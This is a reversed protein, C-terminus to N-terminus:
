LKAFPPRITIFSYSRLTSSPAALDLAWAEQDARERVCPRCGVYQPKFLCM